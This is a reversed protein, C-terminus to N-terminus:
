IPQRGGGLGFLKEIGTAKKANSWDGDRVQRSFVNQTSTSMARVFFGTRSRELISHCRSVLLVALAQLDAENGLYYDTRPNDTEFCSVISMLAAIKVLQTNENYNSSSYAQDVLNSVVGAVQLADELKMLQKAQPVIKYWNSESTSTSIDVEKGDVMSKSLVKGKKEGYRMGALMEVVSAYLESKTSTLMSSYVDSLGQNNNQNNFVLQEQTQPQTQQGQKSDFLGM